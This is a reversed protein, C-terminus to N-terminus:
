SNKKKLREIDQQFKILTKEINDFQMLIKSRYLNLTQLTTDKRNISKILGYIDTICHVLMEAGGVGAGLRGIMSKMASLNFSESLYCSEFHSMNNMMINQDHEQLQNNLLNVIQENRHKINEQNLKRLDGLMKETQKNVKSMDIEDSNLDFNLTLVVFLSTVISEALFILLSILIGIFSDFAKNDM